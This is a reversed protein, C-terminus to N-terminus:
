EIDAQHVRPGPPMSRQVSARSRFCHRRDRYAGSNEDRSLLLKVSPSKWVRVSIIPSSIGGGGGGSGSISTEPLPISITSPSVVGEEVSPVSKPLVLKSPSVTCRFKTIAFVLVPARSIVLTEIEPGLWASKAITEAGAEVIEPPLSLVSVISNSGSLISTRDAMYSYRCYHHHRLRM